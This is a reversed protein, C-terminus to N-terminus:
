NGSHSAASAAAQDAGFNVELRQLSNQILEVPQLAWALPQSPSTSCGNGDCVQELSEGGCLAASGGRGWGRRGPGARLSKGGVKPHQRPILVPLSGESEELLSPKPCPLSLTPTQPPTQRCRAPAPPTHPVVAGRFSRYTGTGAAGQTLSVSLIILQRRRQAEFMM